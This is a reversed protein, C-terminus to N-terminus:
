PDGKKSAASTEASAPALKKLRSEALRIIKERLGETTYTYPDMRAIKKEVKGEGM